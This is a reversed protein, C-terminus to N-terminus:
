AFLAELRNLCSGWGQEHGDKAEVVPFGEHVLVVETADGREEFEVTVLTEGVSHSEEEWDWTYVLRNPADVERYTGFATHAAGEVNMVIKYAGGVRLDIEVELVSGTEPCAWNKMHETQTWADWVAQRDAQITRAVRLSNLTEVSM